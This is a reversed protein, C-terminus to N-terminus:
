PFVASLNDMYRKKSNSFLQCHYRFIEHLLIFYFANVDRYALIFQSFLGFYVNDLAIM